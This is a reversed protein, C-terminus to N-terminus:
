GLPAGRPARESSGLHARVPDMQNIAAGVVRMLEALRFGEPKSIHLETGLPVAEEGESYASVVIVKIGGLSPDAAMQSLVAGGDLGPMALDLLVLDPPEARM